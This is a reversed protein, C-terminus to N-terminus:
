PREVIEAQEFLSDLYNYNTEILILYYSDNERLKSENYDLDDLKLSMLFRFAHEFIWFDRFATKGCEEVTLGLKEAVIQNVSKLDISIDNEFASNDTYKGLAISVEEDAMKIIYDYADIMPEALNYYEDLIVIAKYYENKWDEEQYSMMLRARQINFQDYVNIGFEILSEESNLEFDLNALENLYVKKMEIYQNMETELVPHGNVYAIIDPDEFTYNQANHASPLDLSDNFQARTTCSVLSVIFLVGLLIIISKRM